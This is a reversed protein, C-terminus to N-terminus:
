KQEFNNKVIKVSNFFLNKNNNNSEALVCLASQTHCDTLRHTRVKERHGTDLLQRREQLSALAFGRLTGTENHRVSSEWLLRKCLFVWGFSALM